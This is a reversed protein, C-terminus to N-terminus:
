QAAKRGVLLGRTEAGCFMAAALRPVTHMYLPKSDQPRSSPYRPGISGDFAM